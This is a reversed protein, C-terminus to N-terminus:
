IAVSQSQDISHIILVQIQFWGRNNRSLKISILWRCIQASDIIQGGLQEGRDSGQLPLWVRPDNVWFRNINYIKSIM